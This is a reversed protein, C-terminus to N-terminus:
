ASGEVVKLIAPHVRIISDLRLRAPISVPLEALILDRPM